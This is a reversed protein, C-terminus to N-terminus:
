LSAYDLRVANRAYLNSGHSRPPERGFSQMGGRLVAVSGSANRPLGLASLM